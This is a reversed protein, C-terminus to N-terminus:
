RYLKEEQMNKIFTNFENKERVVIVIQKNQPQGKPGRPRRTPSHRPECTQEARRPSHGSPRRSRRGVKWGEALDSREKAAAEGGALRLSLYALFYVDGNIFKLPTIKFAWVGRLSEKLSDRLPTPPRSYISAPRAFHPRGSLLSLCFALASLIFHFAFTSCALGLLLYYCAAGCLPLWVLSQRAQSGAGFYFAM